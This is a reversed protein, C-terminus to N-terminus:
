RTTSIQSLETRANDEDKNKNFNKSSYIKNTPILENILTEKNQNGNLKFQPRAGPHVTCVEPDEARHETVESDSCTKWQQKKNIKIKKGGYRRIKEVYELKRFKRKSKGNNGSVFIFSVKM